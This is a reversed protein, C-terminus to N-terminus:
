NKAWTTGESDEITKGKVKAKSQSGDEMKFQVDKGTATYTGKYFKGGQKCVFSGDERLELYEGEKYENNYRGAVSGSCAVLFAILVLIAVVGILQKM